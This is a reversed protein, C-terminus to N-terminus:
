AREKNLVLACGAVTVVAVIAIVVSSVAGTKEITEANDVVTNGSADVLSVTDKALDLKVTLNLNDAVDQMEDAITQLQADTLASVSTADMKSTKDWLDKMETLAKEAKTEDLNVDDRNLYNYAKTQYEAPVKYTKQGIKVDNNKIYDLLKQEEANIGSFASVSVSLLAVVLVLPLLLALVKKM